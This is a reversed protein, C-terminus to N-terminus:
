DVFFVEALNERAVIRIEMGNELVESADEVKVAAIAGRAYGCAAFESIPSGFEALVAGVQSLLNDVDGPCNRFHSSLNSALVAIEDAVWQRELQEPKTTIVVRGTTMGNRGVNNGKLIPFLAGERDSSKKAPL